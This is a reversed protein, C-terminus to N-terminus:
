DQGLARRVPASSLILLVAAAVLFGTLYAAHWDALLVVVGTGIALVLQIFAALTWSWSRRRRVGRAAIAAAMGLLFAGAAAFRVGTDAGIDDPALDRMGTAVLSLLIALAVGGAAEALLLVRLGDVASARPTRQTTM